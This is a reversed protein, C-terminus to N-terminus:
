ILLILTVMFTPNYGDGRLFNKKSPTAIVVQLHLLALAILALIDIEIKIYAVLIAPTLVPCQVGANAHTQEVALVAVVLTAGDIRFTMQFLVVVVQHPLLVAIDQPWADAM